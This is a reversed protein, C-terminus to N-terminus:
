DSSQQSLRAAAMIAQQVMANNTKGVSRGVRHEHFKALDLFVLGNEDGFDFDTDSNQHKFARAYLVFIAFYIHFFKYSM